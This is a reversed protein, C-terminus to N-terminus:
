RMWIVYFNVKRKETPHHHKCPQIRVQSGNAMLKHKVREATEKSYSGGYYGYKKGDYVKTSYQNYNM